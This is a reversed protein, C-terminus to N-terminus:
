VADQPLRAAPADQSTDSVASLLIPLAALGALLWRNRRTIGPVTAALAGIFLGHAIGVRTHGRFSLWPLIAPPYNTTLQAAGEGAAMTLAVSAAAPDRRSLVASLAVLAPCAFQDFRRHLQPSVLGTPM